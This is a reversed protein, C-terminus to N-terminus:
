FPPLCFMLSLYLVTRDVRPYNRSVRVHYSTYSHSRNRVWPSSHPFTRPLLRILVIRSGRTQISLAAGSHRLSHLRSSQADFDRKETSLFPHHDPVPVVGCFLEGFRVRSLPTSDCSSSSPPIFTTPESSSFFSGSGSNLRQRTTNDTPRRGLPASCTTM